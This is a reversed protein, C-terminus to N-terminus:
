GPARAKQADVYKTLDSKPIRWSRGAKWANPFDGRKCMRQVSRKTIALKKAVEETFYFARGV